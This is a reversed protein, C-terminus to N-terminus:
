SKKVSLLEEVTMGCEGAMSAFLTKGEKMMQEVLCPFFEVARSRLVRPADDFLWVHVICPREDEDGARIALGWKKNVLAYGLQCAMFGEVRGVKGDGIPTWPSVKEFSRGFHAPNGEHWRLLEALPLRGVEGDFMSVEANFADFSENLAKSKVQLADFEANLNKSDSALRAASERIDPMRVNEGLSM